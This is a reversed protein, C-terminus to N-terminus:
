NEILSTQAGDLWKQAMYKSSSVPADIALPALLLTARQWQGAEGEKEGFDPTAIAM